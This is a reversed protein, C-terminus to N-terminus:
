SKRWPDRKVATAPAGVQTQVSGTPRTFGQQPPVEAAPARFTPQAAPAAPAAPAAQTQATTSKGPRNGEADLLHSLKTVGPYKEQRSMSSEKDKGNDLTIVARFPVGNWANSDCNGMVPFVATVYMLATLDQRAMRVADENANILNLRWDMTANQHECEEIIQLTLVLMGGGAKTEQTEGAIVQCLWGTAPSVPFQGGGSGSPRVTSPDFDITFFSM